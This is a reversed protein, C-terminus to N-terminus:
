ECSAAERDARTVLGELVNAEVSLAVADARLNNSSERVCRVHERLLALLELELMTGFRSLVDLGPAELVYTGSANTTLEDATDLLPLCAATKGDLVVEVHISGEVILRVKM